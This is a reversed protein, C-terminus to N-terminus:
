KSLISTAILPVSEVTATVDRVAYMAADAPALGASAGVIACGAQRTVRKLLDDVVVQYGPISELKDLTGGTHGLGAGSIMPVFVGAAALMTPWTASRTAVGGTSHKDVCLGPM